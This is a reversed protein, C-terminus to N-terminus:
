DPHKTPKEIPGTTGVTPPAGSWRQANQCPNTLLERLFGVDTSKRHNKVTNYRAAVTWRRQVICRQLNCRGGAGPAGSFARVSAQNSGLDSADIRGSQMPQERAWADIISGRHTM